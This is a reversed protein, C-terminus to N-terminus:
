MDNYLSEEFTYIVAFVKSNLIVTVKEDKERSCWKKWWEPPKRFPYSSFYFSNVSIKTYILKM